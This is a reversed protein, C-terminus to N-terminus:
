ATASAEMEDGAALTERVATGASAAAAKAGAAPSRLRILAVDAPAFLRLPPGFYGAGRSVFVHMHASHRYLGAFYPNGLYALPQLPFFQGGHTHGSLQLTVGHASAAAVAAPQHSLLVV